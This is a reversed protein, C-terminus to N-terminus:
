GGREETITASVQPTATVRGVAAATRVSLKVSVGSRSALALEDNLADLQRQIKASATVLHTADTTANPM